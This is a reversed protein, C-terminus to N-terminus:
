RKIVTVGDDNKWEQSFWMMKGLWWEDMKWEIVLAHNFYKRSLKVTNYPIKWLGKYHDYNKWEHIEYCQSFVQLNM